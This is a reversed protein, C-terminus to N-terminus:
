GRALVTKVIKAVWGAPNAKSAIIRLDNRLGMVAQTCAKTAQTHARLEDSLRALLALLEDARNASDANDTV